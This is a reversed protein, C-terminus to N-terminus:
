IGLTLLFKSVPPAALLAGLKDLDGREARWAIYSEHDVRTDWKELLVINLPDDDNCTVVISQCGKYSRTDPLIAELTNLLAERNEESVQLELTVDIAM